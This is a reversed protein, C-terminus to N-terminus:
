QKKFRRVLGLGVLGLGVVALTAPAPVIAGPEGALTGDGLTFNIGSTAFGTNNTGTIRWEVTSLYEDASFVFGFWGPAGNAIDHTITNGQTGTVTVTLLEYGGSHGGIDIFFAGIMADVISLTALNASNHGILFGTGDQKVFNSGTNGGMGNFTSFTMTASGTQPLYTHNIDFNFILPSRDDGFQEAQSFLWTTGGVAGFYNDPCDKM